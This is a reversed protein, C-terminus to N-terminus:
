RTRRTLVTVGRKKIRKPPAPATQTQKVPPPTARPVLPDTATSAPGTGAANIAAVRFRYETGNTLGTVTASTATSGTNATTVTWPGDGTKTEIRYGSIPAGGTTGPATWSLDIQGDGSTGALGTPVGPTTRPIVPDTATSAPGTGAANIAAVRFRYETGNTLGTVTASTATSGTNATTVTWPGDGTKTEIRYGSIPAGGTTGPATWSLDIQGDGSTGALGTPVGPATRPIVPDTATSAPGTGAANIAAVRFRYETGNTLGTVTASTATSGTNATTVTWPGDGTKTEIRYGSIPAGGTTGPATWSLDIQGDGPTGALGTPAGPAVTSDLGVLVPDHDSSRYANAEYLLDQAPPKFSTDYDLVDPEDSNVHWQTAGTVRGALGASALAYDLYGAQGDFTYSYSFPGQYKAILNTYDDATGTSDDPGAKLADIPDEQAYANLDGLVLFDPDGSGTPDTALWDVLAKAADTRTLNCNGQGDGTDPDGSCASGKSKFHNVAVTFREGTAKDQFTQALTPRNRTDLFRPDDSSDLVQFAGVPTVKATRYILGVKIADTGITGTDVYAYGSLGAVLDALPEVGTTNELETLGIMDADVATLAALLKDRQRTFEGSQDVDWGRCEMDQSPGCVNASDDGTLFYNMTSMSAARLTGGVSQPAAPRPNAASYTAPGTPYVRYLSYDYGLVGVTNTVTDGGRFRNALSFATGNPHRLVAPNQASTADDLTIRRLTNALTRANAPAGPEDIATGTFPRSEGALPLALVIEGYRDYNFYESIVLDQPLRVLMGEYREPFDASAFPMSVDTPAVTVDTGCTWVNAAPVAAADSNSGNLSTQGYRERAYGKVVVVQGASVLDANGTVVFIGDSTAPNGDGAADQLYFGSAAATGEFDGVVVGKTTVTGTTAASTGSGQIDYIQTTDALCMYLPSFTVLYDAAMTDPPDNTDQDSVQAALVALTCSEGNVLDAPPDLTFTTPGGSVAATVTGSTSCTLTFWSATVNVPESFTVTLNGNLPFDTAGNAPVTSIVEPAGCTAM